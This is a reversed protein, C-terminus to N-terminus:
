YDKNRVSKWNQEITKTCRSFPDSGTDNYDLFSLTYEVGSKMTLNLARGHSRNSQAVLAIDSYYFVRPVNRMWEKPFRKTLLSSFEMRDPYIDLTGTVAYGFVRDHGLLCAASKYVCQVANSSFENKNGINYINVTHAHITVNYNQVAKEVIYASGCFECIAADKSEDVTLNAGCNTCKANVLPM